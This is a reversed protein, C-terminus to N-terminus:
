PDERRFEGEIVRGPGRPGPPPGAGAPGRGAVRVVGHTVLARYLRRRLAPVLLLFGLTDTVFGPTLLFAGALLLCVGDLLEMAPIEGRDAAARARAVTALGQARILGAGVVATLVVLAVTPLAGIVSGVEILLYIEALPVLLFAAFLIKGVPM